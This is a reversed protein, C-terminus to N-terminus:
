ILADSYDPVQFPGPGDQIKLQEIVIVSRFAIHHKEMNHRFMSGLIKWKKLRSNISEHRARLCSMALRLQRDGEGPRCIFTQLGKYGNDAVVKEGLSLKWRLLRKFIKADPWEGAPFPGHYHVIWGTSICIGIEYRM